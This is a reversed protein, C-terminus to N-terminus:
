GNPGKTTQRFRLDVDSIGPHMAILAWFRPFTLSNMTDYALIICPHSICVCVCVCMYIYIYIGNFFASVEDRYYVVVGNRSSVVEITDHM